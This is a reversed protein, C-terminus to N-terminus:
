INDSQYKKLIKEPCTIASALYVLKPIAYTKAVTIRGIISLNRKKWQELCRKMSSIRGEWNLEEKKKADHGFYVGLTKVPDSSWRIGGVEKQINHKEVGLWVGTTKNANIQPGAVEGFRKIESIARMISKENDLFLTVDDALQTLKVETGPIQIGKIQDDQRIKVALVELLQQFGSPFLGFNTFKGEL